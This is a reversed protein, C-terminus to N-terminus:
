VNLFAHLFSPVIISVILFADNFMYNFPLPIELLLLDKLVLLRGFYVSFLLLHKSCAEFHM